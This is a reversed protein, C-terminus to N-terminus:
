SAARARLRDLEGALFEAQKMRRIMEDAVDSGLIALDGVTTFHDLGAGAALTADRAKDERLIREAGREFQVHLRVLERPGLETLNLNGCIDLDAHAGLRRGAPATM